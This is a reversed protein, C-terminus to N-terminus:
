NQVMGGYIYSSRCKLRHIIYIFIHLPQFNRVIRCRFYEGFRYSATPSNNESIERRFPIFFIDTVIIKEYIKKTRKNGKKHKKPEKNEIVKKIMVEDQSKKM